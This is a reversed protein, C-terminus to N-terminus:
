CPKEVTFPQVNIRHLFWALSGAWDGCNVGNESVQTPEVDGMHLHPGYIPALGNHSRKDTPCVELQVIRQRPLLGKRRMITFLFLCRDTVIPAKLEIELTTGPIFINNSDSLQASGIVSGAHNNRKQFGTWNHAIKPLAVLELIEEIDESM